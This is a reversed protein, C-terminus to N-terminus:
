FHLGSLIFTLPVRPFYSASNSGPSRTRWQTGRLLFRIEGKRAEIIIKMQLNKTETAEAGAALSKLLKQRVCLESDRPPRFKAAPLARSIANCTTPTRTHLNNHTPTTRTHIRRSGAEAAAAAAAGPFGLAIFVYIKANGVVVQGGVKRLM